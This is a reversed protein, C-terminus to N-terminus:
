TNLAFDVNVLVAEQTGDIVLGTTKDRQSVIYELPWEHLLCAMVMGATLQKTGGTMDSVIEHPALGIEPQRALDTYVSEIAQYTVNATDSALEIPHLEVDYGLEDIRTELKEFAGAAKVDPTLLVWCHRLRVASQNVHHYRIAFCPLDPGGLSLLWVMGASVPAANEKITPTLKTRDWALKLDYRYAGYASVVLIAVCLGIRAISGMTVTAPFAVLSFVFNSSVGLAVVGLVFAVILWPSEGSGMTLLIRAFRTLTQRQPM